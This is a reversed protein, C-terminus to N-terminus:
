SRSLKTNWGYKDRGRRSQASEDHKGPKVGLTPDDTLVTAARHTWGLEEGLTTAAGDTWDLREGLTTGGTLETATGVTAKEGLRTVAKGRRNM